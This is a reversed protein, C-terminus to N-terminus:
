IVLNKGVGSAKGEGLNPMLSISFPMAGMTAMPNQMAIPLPMMPNYPHMPGYMGENM